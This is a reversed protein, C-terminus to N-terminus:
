ALVEDAAKIGSNMSHDMNYFAWEGFRGASIIGAKRLNELCLSVDKEITVHPVAYAPSHVSSWSNEIDKKRIIGSKELCKLTNKILNEAKARSMVSPGACEALLVKNGPAAAPNILDVRTLRYFPIDADPVYIWHYPPLNIKKLVYHICLVTNAKLRGAAGACKGLGAMRTVSDLPLTSILRNYRIDCSSTKITRSVADIKLVETGYLLKSNGIHEIMGSILSEIGGKKPYMFEAHPATEPSKGRQKFRPKGSSGGLVSDALSSSDPLRIKLFIWKYDMESLKAQWLKENYPRFFLEVIGAGFVRLSFEELSRPKIEPTDMRDLLGKLVFKRDELGLQHVNNQFPFDVYGNKWLVGLRHSHKYVPGAMKRFIEAARKDKTFFVHPLEDIEASGYKRTKMLGGPRNELELILIDRCGKDALRWAATLGTLGAGIIVIDSSKKM